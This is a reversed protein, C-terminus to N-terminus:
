SNIAPNFISSRYNASFPCGKARNEYPFSNYSYNRSPYTAAAKLDCPFTELDSIL